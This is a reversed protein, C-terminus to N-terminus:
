RLRGFLAKLLKSGHIVFAPVIIVDSSRLGLTSEDYFVGVEASVGMEEDGFLVGFFGGATPSDSEAGVSMPVVQSGRLGGYPTVVSRPASLLLSTEFYAHNGANVIGFGPMVSVAMGEEPIPPTLLYKLNFVLGTFGTTRLGADARESVRVRTEMDVGMFAIQASDGNVAFGNPITYWIFTTTPEKSEVPHATTGVTYPICAQGMLSVASLM